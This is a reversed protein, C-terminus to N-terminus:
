PRLRCGGRRDHVVAGGSARRTFLRVLPSAGRVMLRYGDHKVDHVWDPGAPPPTGFPDIVAFPWDTKVAITDIVPTSSPTGIV